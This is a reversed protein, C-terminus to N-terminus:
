QQSNNAPEYIEYIYKHIFAIIQDAIASKSSQIIVRKRSQMSTPFKQM